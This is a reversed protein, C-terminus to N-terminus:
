RSSLLLLLLLARGSTSLNRMKYGCLNEDELQGQNDDVDNYDINM